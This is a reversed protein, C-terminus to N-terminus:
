QKFWQNKYETYFSQYNRLFNIEFTLGVFNVIPSLTLHRFYFLLDKKVMGRAEGM